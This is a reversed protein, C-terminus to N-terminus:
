TARFNYNEELIKAVDELPLREEIYHRELHPRIRDWEEKRPARNRTIKTKEM